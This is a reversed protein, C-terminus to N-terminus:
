IGNCTAPRSCASLGTAADTTCHGSTCDPNDLCSEGDAFAHGCTRPGGSSHSVCALGAVCPALECSEGLMVPAACAPGGAPANGCYDSTCEGSTACASGAPLTGTYVGDCQPIPVNGFPGGWTSCPLASVADLCARARAGDYTALGADVLAKGDGPSMSHIASLSAECTVEDVITPDIAAIETADCCIFMKHCFVAFLQADLQDIPIPAGGGGGGCGAVVFAALVVGINGGTRQVEVILVSPPRVRLARQWPAHSVPATLAGDNAKEQSGM